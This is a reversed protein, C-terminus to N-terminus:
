ETGKEARTFDKRIAASWGTSSRPSTKLHKERLDGKRRGQEMGAQMAQSVVFTLGIISRCCNSLLCHEAASLYSLATRQIMRMVFYLGLTWLGPGLYSKPPMAFPHYGATASHAAYVGSTARSHYSGGVWRARFVRRSELPSWQWSSFSRLFLTAVIIRKVEARREVEAWISVFCERQAIRLEVGCSDKRMNIALDPGCSVNDQGDLGLSSM